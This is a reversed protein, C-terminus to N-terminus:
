TSSDAYVWHVRCCVDAGKLAELAKGLVSASLDPIDSGVLVAAQTASTSDLAATLAAHMRTGLDGDHQARQTARPTGRTSRGRRVLHPAYSGPLAHTLWAHVETHSSPPEAYWVTCQATPISCAQCVVHEACARYVQVAAQEGIGAALRRKVRGRVPLRAFVLVENSSSPCMSSCDYM